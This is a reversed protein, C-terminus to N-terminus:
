ITRFDIDNHGHARCQHLYIRALLVGINHQCKKRSVLGLIGAGKLWCGSIEQSDLKRGDSFHGVVM